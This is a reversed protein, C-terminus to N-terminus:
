VNIIYMTSYLALLGRKHLKKQVNRRYCALYIARNKKYLIDGKLAKVTAEDVEKNGILAKAIQSHCCTKRLEIDSKDAELGQLTRLPLVLSM